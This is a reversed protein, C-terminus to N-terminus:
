FIKKEEQVKTLWEKTLTDGDTFSAEGGCSGCKLRL